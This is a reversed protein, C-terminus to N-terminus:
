FLDSLTSVEVRFATCGKLFEKINSLCEGDNKPEQYVQFFPFAPWSNFKWNVSAERVATAHPKWQRLFRDEEGEEEEVVRMRSDGTHSCQGPRVSRSASCLGGEWRPLPLSQLAPDLSIVYVFLSAGRGRRGWGVLKQHQKLMHTCQNKNRDWKFEYLLLIFYPM